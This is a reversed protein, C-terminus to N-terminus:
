VRMEVKMTIDVPLGDGGYYPFTFSFNTIIIGTDAQFDKLYKLLLNYKEKDMLTRGDGSRDSM